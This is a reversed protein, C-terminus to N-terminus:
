FAYGWQEFNRQWARAIKRRLPEALPPYSNRKYGAISNVYRRLKPEVDQFGSLNLGEYIKGVQGVMDKELEEFCVEHFRRASILAREEFFADYMEIYRRLFGADIREAKPRQLHSLSVAKAYLRQTSQFVTYPNRRIHIFRADPFLELILRIRGTHAPSKLLLPRDYRWTLKKLFRV